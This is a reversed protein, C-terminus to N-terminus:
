WGRRPTISLQVGLIFTLYTSFKQSLILEVPQLHDLKFAGPVSFEKEEDITSHNGKGKEAMRERPYYIIPSGTHLTHSYTSFIQSSILEVPQLHDLKFAGPM